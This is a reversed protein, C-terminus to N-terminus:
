HTHRICGLDVRCVDGLKQRLGLGLGELDLFVRQRHLTEVAHGHAALRLGDRDILDASIDVSQNRRLIFQLSGLFFRRRPLFLHDSANYRVYIFQFAVGGCHDLVEVPFDAM